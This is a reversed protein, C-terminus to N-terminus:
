RTKVATLAFLLVTADSPGCAGLRVERITQNPRPNLWEYGYVTVDEGDATKDQVLPDALYTAIYGSHRYMPHHMPEAHRRHWAAINGGYEIPVRARGGDAYEIVYEGVTTLRSSPSRKANGHTAHLFILSDARRNVAVSVQRPHGSERAAESQVGLAHGIRFPVGRLERRGPELRLAAGRNACAKRGLSITSFTSGKIQSPFTRGRLRSRIHPVMGTIIRDYTLRLEERYAASWMMNASYIFDYIKGRSGFTYEDSRVWTSVEAGVIGKRSRRAAYRPYHSSYMNGMVVKFGHDLLRTEIDRDLHFYWIFDLLIIDKPICDIAPPTEYRTVDQLMDAWIMMGLGKSQLHEYVRNVHLAFLEAPKRDRCRECVGISYVEDHGMHVYRSPQVVDVIEDILDFTIEYSKEQLPCYCHPYVRPPKRDAKEINVEAEERAETPALEAIEPYTATLYQVHSLSQIEPIVEFGYERAYAVLDRVEDKTLYSGGVIMNAHPLRPTEGRAARAQVETCAENIEPRRDFRIGSTIQLFITNYRMPALVYRILRKIFGIEERPPLGFHVGRLEMAPEDAITCAPIALASSQQLLSLITEVGYILGRRDSAVLCATKKAVNLCYGDPKPARGEHRKLAKLEKALGLIIRGSLGKARSHECVKLSVGFQESIKGVLLEAAFHSDESAGETIAIGAMQELRLAGRPSAFECHKPLPYVIPSDFACGLVDVQKLVINRFCARLRVLLACAMVGVPVAIEEDTVEGDVGAMLRGAPRFVKGDESVLVEIAAVGSGAETDQTLLVRDIFVAKKLDIQIDVGVDLLSLAKWGVPQDPCFLSGEAFPIKGRDGGHEPALDPFFAEYTGRRFYTYTGPLDTLSGIAIGPPHISM